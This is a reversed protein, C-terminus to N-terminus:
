RRARFGGETQRESENARSEQCRPTPAVSRRYTLLATESRAVQGILKAVAPGIVHRVEAGPNACGLGLRQAAREDLRRVKWALHEDFLRRDFRGARRDAKKANVAVDEISIPLFVKIVESDRLAHRDVFRCLNPEILGGISELSTRSVGFGIGRRDGVRRSAYRCRDALVPFDDVTRHLASRREPRELAKLNAASASETAQCGFVEVEGFPDALDAFLAGGLEFFDGAACRRFLVRLAPDVSARLALDVSARLALDISQRSFAM